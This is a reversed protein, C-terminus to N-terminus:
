QLACQVTGSIRFTPVTFTMVKQNLNNSELFSIIDEEINASKRM